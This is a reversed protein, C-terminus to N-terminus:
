ASIEKPCGADASSRVIAVGRGAFFRGFTDVDMAVNERSQRDLGSPNHFVIRNESAATVLVLHGGKRPPERDPTRISSHVSAIFFDATALQEPLAEAPLDTIVKADLGFERRVFEVFPAYILGKIAGTEPEVTYGGYITCRRALEITPWTTGTLAALVMKLCAMGCIHSAWAAYDDISAAGSSRWRLDQRLATEFGLELGRATLDPTEWQSFYPVARM